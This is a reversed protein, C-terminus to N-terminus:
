ASRFLSTLCTAHSADSRALPTATAGQLTRAAVDVYSFSFCPKHSKGGYCLPITSRPPAGESVAAVGGRMLGSAYCCWSSFLAHMRLNTGEACKGGGLRLVTAASAHRLM